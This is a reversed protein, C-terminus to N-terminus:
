RRDGYVLHATCLTPTVAAAKLRRRPNPLLSITAEVLVPQHQWAPPKSAPASWFCTFALTANTHLLYFGAESTHKIAIYWDIEVM